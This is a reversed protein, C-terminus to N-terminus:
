GEFTRLQETVLLYVGTSGAATKAGKTYTSNTVVAAVDAGWIAKGAFVEQVPTNGLPSSYLKCQFVATRGDKSAYIDVGQDGSGGMVRAVWGGSRLENACYKEYEYPDTDPVAIGGNVEEESRVRKLEALHTDILPLMERIVWQPLSPQTDSLFLRKEADWGDKDFTKKGYDTTGSLMRRKALLTPGFRELSGKLAEEAAAQEAQHARHERLYRERSGEADAAKVRKAEEADAAKKAPRERLARRADRFFM